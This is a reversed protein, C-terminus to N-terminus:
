TRGQRRDHAELAARIARATGEPDIAGSVNITIGGGGGAYYRPAQLGGRASGAGVNYYPTGTTLSRGLQPPGPLGPIDPWAKRILANLGGVISNWIKGAIGSVGASIWGWVKGAFGSFAAGISEIIDTGIGKAASAVTKPLSALGSALDAVKRGVWTGLNGVGDALDSLLRRGMSLAASGVAAVKELIKGPVAAVYNGVATVMNSVVEKASAWAASWDGRLLAGVMALAARIAGFVPSIIGWATTIAGRVGEWASAVVTRFTASERYAIVVAAVLAGIAVVVLGIPNATLAANLLWQAATWALTAGKAVTQVASAVKMAANAALIFGAVGAVAAGLAVFVGSHEQALQGLRQLIPLFKEVVPLLAAGISEKTESIAISFRRFQGAATNGAADAAGGTSKALAANIKSFDGSKATAEDLGPIMKRLAGGSGNYAGTLAKTVAALPKGSAASVDLAVKLAAQAKGVDGTQTALQGLAPRLDDDAVGVQQSLASIFSEASKVAADTAGTTRKLQGALKDAAAADEIAAKTFDVAAAGVAALAIGAPIAARSLAAQAKETKTMHDGVATSLRRFEGIAQSANAGINIVLSTAGM